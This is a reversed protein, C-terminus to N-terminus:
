PSSQCCIWSKPDANCFRPGAALATVLAGPRPEVDGADVWVTPRDRDSALREVERLLSTKGVGGPGHVHLVAPGDATDLAWMMRGLEVDRGVLACGRGRLRDGVRPRVVDM